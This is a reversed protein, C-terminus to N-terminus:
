VHSKIRPECSQLIGLELRLRDEEPRTNWILAVEHEEMYPFRIGQLVCDGIHDSMSLEPYAGVFCVCTHCFPCPKLEM